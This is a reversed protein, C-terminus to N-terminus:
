REHCCLLWGLLRSLRWRLWSSSDPEALHLSEGLPVWNCLGSGMYPWHGAEGRRPRRRGLPPSPLGRGRGGEQQAGTSEELPYEAKDTSTIVKVVEELPMDEALTTISCNM